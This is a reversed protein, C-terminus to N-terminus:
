ASLLVSRCHCVQSWGCRLALEKPQDERTQMSRGSTWCPMSQRCTVELSHSVQEDTSGDLKGRVDYWIGLDRLAPCCSVLLEYSGPLELPGSCMILTQLRTCPPQPAFVVRLDGPCIFCFSLDLYTIQQLQNVTLVAIQEHSHLLMGLSECLDLHQLDQLQRVASMLELHADITPELQSQVAEATDAASLKDSYSSYICTYM